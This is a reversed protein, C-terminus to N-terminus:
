YVEITDSIDSMENMEDETYYTFTFVLAYNKRLTCIQTQYTETEQYDMKMHMLAFESGSVTATEIDDFTYDNGTQELLAKSAELYDSPSQITKAGSINEAVVNINPNGATGLANKTVM